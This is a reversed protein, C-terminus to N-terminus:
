RFEPAAEAYIRFSDLEPLAARVAHVIADQEFFFLARPGGVPEIGLVTQSYRDYGPHLLASDPLAHSFGGPNQQADDPSRSQVARHPRQRHIGRQIMAMSPPNM